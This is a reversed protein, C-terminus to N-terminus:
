ETTTEETSNQSSKYKESGGNTYHDMHNYYESTSKRYIPSRFVMGVFNVNESIRKEAESLKLEAEWVKKNRERESVDEERKNLAANREDLKRYEEIKALHLEIEKRANNYAIVTAKLEEADKDAQKLRIKLVDGVQAPLNKEIIVKIEETM